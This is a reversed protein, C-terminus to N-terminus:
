DMRGYLSSEVQTEGLVKKVASHSGGDTLYRALAKPVSGETLRLAEDVTRFSKAAAQYDTERGRWHSGLWESKERALATFTTSADGWAIADSLRGIGNKVDAADNLLGAM